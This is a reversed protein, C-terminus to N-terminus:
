TVLESHLCRIPKDPGLEVVHSNLMNRRFPADTDPDSFALVLKTEIPLPAYQSPLSTSEAFALHEASVNLSQSRRQWADLVHLNM